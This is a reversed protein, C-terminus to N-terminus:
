LSPLRLQSLAEMFGTWSANMEKNIATPLGWGMTHQHDQTRYPLQGLLWYNAGELAEAPAGAELNRDQNHTGPSVKQHHIAIRPIYASKLTSEGGSGEKWGQLPNRM